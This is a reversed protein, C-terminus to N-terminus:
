SPPRDLWAMLYLGDLRQVLLEHLDDRESELAPSLPQTAYGNCGVSLAASPKSTGDPQKYSALALIYLSIPICLAELLSTTPPKFSHFFCTPAFM